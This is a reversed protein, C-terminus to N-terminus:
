RLEFAHKAQSEVQKVQKMEFVVQEEQLGGAMKEGEVFV